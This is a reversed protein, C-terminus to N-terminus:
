SRQAYVARARFRVPREDLEELYHATWGAVRAIAFLTRGADDPMGTALTLGALGLDVNPPPIHREAALAVIGALARRQAPTALQEVMSEIVGYRPDRETYVTHGFGPLRGQWRLTEDLAREPGLREADRLLGYALQSAGGHLPGALVGLGVLVADYLDARTSAAVRVALTSTALEHDALLILVADLARVTATDDQGVLRRALEGAVSWRAPAAGGPAGDPAGEPADHDAPGPSRVATAPLASVMAPVLRRAVARVSTPRLDSRLDDAAGAMLVAWRLRDMVGLRAPPRMRGPAWHPSRRDDDNGWLLEAVVEYTSSVALETARYGRYAPGEPGLKTVGTTVTALRTGTTRAGKSRRALAEVDDALFLSHRGDDSRHSELLGRSVYAYLTPLKVGLRRAAEASELM